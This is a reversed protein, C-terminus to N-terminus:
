IYKWDELDGFHGGIEFSNATSETMLIHIQM